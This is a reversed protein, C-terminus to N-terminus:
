AEIVITLSGYGIDLDGEGGEINEEVERGRDSSIETELGRYGGPKIFWGMRAIVKGVSLICIVIVM